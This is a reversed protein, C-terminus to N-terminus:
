RIALPRGLARVVALRLEDITPPNAVLEDAGAARALERLLPTSALAIVPVARPLARARRIAARGGEPDGDLDVVLLDIQDDLLLEVAAADSAQALDASTIASRVLRGITARDRADGAMVLVPIGHFSSVLQDILAGVSASVEAVEVAIGRPGDPGPEARRWTVQGQVGVTSVGPVELALELAAGVPLERGTELFLGGRSLSTSYAMLFSSPSRYEVAIAYPARAPAPDTM